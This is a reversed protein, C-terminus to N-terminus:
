RFLIVAYNVNYRTYDTTVLTFVILYKCYTTCQSFVFIRLPFLSVPSEKRAKHGSGPHLLIYRNRAPSPRAFWTPSLVVRRSSSSRTSSRRRSSRSFSSRRPRFFSRRRFWSDPTDTVVHTDYWEARFMLCM